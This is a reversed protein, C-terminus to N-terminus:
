DELVYEKIEKLMHKNLQIAKKSKSYWVLYGKKLLNEIVKKLEGIDSVSVSSLINEYRIHKSGIVRKRIMKELLHKELREDM